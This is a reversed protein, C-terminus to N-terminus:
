NEDIKNQSQEPGALIVEIEHEELAEMAKDSLGSDSILVDFENIDAIHYNAIKGWKSHDAVIIAKGLCRKLMLRNVEAEDSIPSTCGFRSSVGDMGLIAKNAYVQLLNQIAFNGVLSTSLPRFEGGLLVVNIEIDQAAMAASVNNTVITVNELDTRAHIANMVTTTTTGNNLFVTDNNEILQIASQAIWKKEEQNISASTKYIAEKHMSRILMAGGHTREILNHAELWEMDRRITAESSNFMEILTSSKAIGHKQLYTLIKQRREAPIMKKPM